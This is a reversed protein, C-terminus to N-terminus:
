NIGAYYKELDAKYQRIATERYRAYNKRRQDLQQRFEKQERAYAFRRAYYDCYRWFEPDETKELKPTDPVGCQYTEGAALAPRTLALAILLLQFIILFRM